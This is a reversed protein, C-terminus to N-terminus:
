KKRKVGILGILASGFLWAAAPIPVPSAAVLYSGMITHRWITSRTRDGTWNDTFNSGVWHSIGVAYLDGDSAFDGTIGKTGYDYSASVEGATNGLLNAASVFTSYLPDTVLIVDSTGNPLGLTTWLNEVEAVSAYRYGAFEQGAGLKSSIDNYSRGNTETLDLWDLGTAMDRTINGLDVVAANATLSLTLGVLTLTKNIM